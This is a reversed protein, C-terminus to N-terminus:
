DLIAALEVYFKQGSTPTFGTLTELAPGSVLESLSKGTQFPHALLRGFDKGDDAVYVYGSDGVRFQKIAARLPDLAKHMALDDAVAEAFRSRYGAM